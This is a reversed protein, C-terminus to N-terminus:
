ENQTVEALHKGIIELVAQKAQKLVSDVVADVDDEATYEVCISGYERLEDLVKDWAELSRIAMQFHRYGEESISKDMKMNEAIYYLTRQTENLKSTSIGKEECYNKCYTM